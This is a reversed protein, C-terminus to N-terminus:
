SAAKSKLDSIFPELESPDKLLSALSSLATAAFGAGQASTWQGLVERRNIHTNVTLFLEAVHHPDTDARVRDALRETLRGSLLSAIAQEQSSLYARREDETNLHSVVGADKGLHSSGAHLLAPIPSAEREELVEAIRAVEEEVLADLIAHKSSFHHYLGGRSIGCALRIDEMEMNTLGRDAILRRAKALIDSRRDSRSLRTRM